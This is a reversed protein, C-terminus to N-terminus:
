LVATRLAEIAATPGVVTVTTTTFGGILLRARGRGIRDITVRPRGRPLVYRSQIQGSNSAVHIINDNTWWGVRVTFDTEETLEDGDLTIVYTSM